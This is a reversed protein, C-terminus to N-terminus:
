ETYLDVSGETDLQDPVESTIGVSPNAYSFTAIQKQLSAVGARVAWLEVRVVATASGVTFSQSLGTLGAFHQLLTNSTNDYVDLTYTTGAEATVSAATQDVLTDAQTIRNRARWAIAVAGALPGAVLDWRTGNITMYAPPYPALARGVAVENIVPALSIDLTGLPANSCPKNHITEGSFYEIQDSGIFRDPFWIRVAGAHAHALSDVCGRTVTCVGTLYNIATLQCLEWNSGDVIYLSDGVLVQSVDVMSILVLTVDFPQIALSLLATPAFHDVGHNVYGPGSDTFLTYSQQLSNPRGILLGDYAAGAPLAAAAAAGLARYLQRYDPEYVQYVTPAVPHDNPATWGSPQAVLYTDTPMSFVDEIATVAISGDLLTGSDVDGVRCIVNSLAADPFTFKFLDGPTLLYASRKFKIQMRKLPISSAALERQCVRAALDATAIGTFDKYDSIVVGQATVAGLAQLSVSQKTKTLPDFYKVWMENVNGTISADEKDTLEIVDDATFVPLLSPDYGGRILKLQFLGTVPSTVLVGAIYDMVKQLFAEISDQRNWLLCLGFGENYLQLAAATFFADDLASRPYGMGWDPNTLTEYVIHAPNMGVVGSSLTIAAKTPNWCNDANWGKVTRRTRFSWPKPYPNNAGILGPPFASGGRYVVTVLGRYAPQPNGQQALLYANVGQSAEGMMVDLTGQVGGEKTDGGFLMPSSISIPGSVTQSGSWATRDGARVELLADCPGHHLGFHLGLYYRYGAVAGGKSGM